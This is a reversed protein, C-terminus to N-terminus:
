GGARGYFGSRAAPERAHQFQNNSTGWGTYVGRQQKKEKTTNKPLNEVSLLRSLSGRPSLPRISKQSLIEINKGVENKTSKKSMKEIQRAIQAEMQPGNQCLKGYKKCVKEQYRNKKSKGHMKLHGSGTFDHERGLPPKIEYIEDNKFFSLFDHIQTDMKADNQSGKPM